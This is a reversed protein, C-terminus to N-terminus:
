WRAIFSYRDGRVVSVRREVPRGGSTAVREILFAAVGPPLELRSRQADNPVVPSIREHGGTITLGARRELADYLSGRELDARELTRGVTAPLWSRDLSLPEDGAHRVRELYCVVDDPEVSLPAATTGAPREDFVLVESREDLGATIVSRALSYLGQLSQELGDAPNISTGRGREATLVGAAKLERIAERVTHRSVDYEETLQAETPLRAGFEGASIRRRLDTGVQAWLPVVSHRDVPAMLRARDGRRPRPHGRGHRRRGRVALRAGRSWLVVLALVRFAPTAALVLIGLAMVFDATSAAHGLRFLKVGASHHIGSALKMGLGTAMLAVSAGLGLRLLLQVARQM